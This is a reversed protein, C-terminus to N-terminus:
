SGSGNKLAACWILWATERTPTIPNIAEYAANFAGTTEELAARTPEVQPTAPM